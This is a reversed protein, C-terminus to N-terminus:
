DSEQSGPQPKAYRGEGTRPNRWIVEKISCLSTPPPSPVAAHWERHSNGPNSAVPQRAILGAAPERRPLERDIGRSAESSALKAASNGCARQRRAASRSHGLFKLRPVPIAKAELPCVFRPAAPRWMPPRNRKGSEVEDMTAGLPELAALALFRSSDPNYRAAFARDTLSGNGRKM